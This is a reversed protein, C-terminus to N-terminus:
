DEKIEPVGIKKHFARHVEETEELILSGCWPCVIFVVRRFTGNINSQAGLSEFFVKREWTMDEWGIVEESTGVVPDAHNVTVWHRRHLTTSVVCMPHTFGLRGGDCWGSRVNKLPNRAIGDTM